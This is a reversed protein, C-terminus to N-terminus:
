DRPGAARRRRRRDTRGGAPRRHLPGNYSNLTLSEPPMEVLYHLVGKGDPTFGGFFSGRAGLNKFSYDVTVIGKGVKEVYRTDVAQRNPYDQSRRSWGARARSPM